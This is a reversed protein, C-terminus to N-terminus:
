LIIFKHKKWRSNPSYPALKLTIKFVETIGEFIKVSYELYM